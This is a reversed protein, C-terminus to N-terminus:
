ECASACTYQSTVKSLLSTMYQQSTISTLRVEDDSEFQVNVGYTEDLEEQEQVRRSEDAMSFDTVKKGLNVLLAFREDALQGLLNEVEKKRDKDRIKDSKLVALVEDAAGCLIDRPQFASTFQHFIYFRFM